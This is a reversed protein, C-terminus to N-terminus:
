HLWLWWIAICSALGVTLNMPVGIKLFDSFRYNGAGYVLTNTQYGVPTAFSASAAMMVALVAARPEHGAAEALRIAIPTLIVAVANNTVLETLTSTLLYLGIIFLLPPASAFAPSVLDVLVGITGAKSLGLGIALMAFVLMLLGGDIAGWAEDADICRLLLLGAVAILALAGIPAVGLAALVVVAVAAAIAVPARRRRFPRTETVTLSVFEPMRAFRAVGEPSGRVMLRDAPRMIVEDLSEGALHGDRHVGLLAVDGAKLLAVEGLRRRGVRRRPAIFAEAVIADGNPTSREWGVHLGDEGALSLIEERTASVVLRDGAELALNSLDERILKRKRILARLSIGDPRLLALDGIPTGVAGFASTVTIETLFRSTADDGIEEGAERRDPLVLPGLLLLTLGGALSGVLGIPTIEFISFPALGEGDSIGAVVLNTSTGILTCTGGLVAAYSLPILLKTSATGITNALRIVVPILVLVVPMNNVFASALLAGALIAGVALGPSTEARRTIWGAVAELTGTRVLAGSVVFMAAITILAPSALVSAVDDITLIGLGVFLSAAIIAVASPPLVELAFAVFALVLIALGVFPQIDAPIM